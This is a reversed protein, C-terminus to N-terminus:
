APFISSFLITVLPYHFSKERKRLTKKRIKKSLSYIKKCKDSRLYNFNM